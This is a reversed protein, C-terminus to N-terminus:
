GDEKTEVPEKLSLLWDSLVLFEQKKGTFRKKHKRGDIAIKKRLYLSLFEGDRRLGIDSLDPPSPAEEDTDEEMDEEEDAEEETGIGTTHVAHCQHCKYKLFIDLGSKEALVPGTFLIWLVGGLFLALWTM